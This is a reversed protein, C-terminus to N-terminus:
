RLKLLYRIYSCLSRHSAKVPRLMWEHHFWHHGTAGSRPDELIDLVTLNFTFSPGYFFFRVMTHKPGLYDVIFAGGITGPM